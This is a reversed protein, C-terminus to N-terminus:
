EWLQLQQCAGKRKLDSEHAKNRIHHECSVERRYPAVFCLASRRARGIPRLQIKYEDRRKGFM